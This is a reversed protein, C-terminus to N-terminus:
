RGGGTFFERLTERFPKPKAGSRIIRRLEVRTVALQAMEEFLGADQTLDTAFQSWRHDAAELARISLDRLGARLVEKEEGEPLSEVLDDLDNVNRM